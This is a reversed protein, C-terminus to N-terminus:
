FLALNRLIPLVDSPVQYVTLQRLNKSMELSKLVSKWGCNSTGVRGYLSCVQIAHQKLSMSNLDVNRLHLMQLHTCNILDLALVLNAHEIVLCKLRKSFRSTQELEGRFNICLKAINEANIIIKPVRVDSVTLASLQKCCSLDLCDYIEIHVLSLEHLKYLGAIFDLKNSKGIVPLYQTNIEAKDGVNGSKLLKLYGQEHFVSYRTLHDKNLAKAFYMDDLIDLCLVAIRKDFIVINQADVNRLTLASLSRCSSLDLMGNIEINHVYLTHLNICSDFFTPKIITKVSSQINIYSLSICCLDILYEYMETTSINEFSLFAIHKRKQTQWTNKTPTGTVKAVSFIFHDVDPKAEQWADLTSKLLKDVSEPRIIDESCMDQVCVHSYIKSIYEGVSKNMGCIFCFLERTLVINRNYGPTCTMLYKIDEEFAWFHIAALFEKVTQDMFSFVREGGVLKGVIGTKLAFNEDEENLQGKYAPKIPLNFGDFLSAFAIQSLDLLLKSRAQCLQTKSFCNPLTSHTHTINGQYQIKHMSHEKSFLLEITNSYVECRSSGLEQNAFWLSLLQLIYRPNTLMCQLDNQAVELLFSHATRNYDPFLSCVSHILCLACNTDMTELLFYQFDWHDSIAQSSTVLFTNTTEESEVINDLENILQLYTPARLEDLGDLIVLCTKQAFVHELFARDYNQYSLIGCIVSEKLIAKVDHFSANLEGLKVLFTIDFHRLADSKLCSATGGRTKNQQREVVDRQTSCWSRTLYNCLTTKGVGPDGKIYICQTDSSRDEFIEDLTALYHMATTKPEFMKYSIKSIRPKVYFEELDCDIDLLPSLPYLMQKKYFNLLDRRFDKFLSEFVAHRNQVHVQMPWPCADLFDLDGTEPVCKQFLPTSNGEDQIQTDQQNEGIVTANKDHIGEKSKMELVISDKDQLHVTKHVDKQFLTMSNGVDHQNECIVPDYEEHIREYSNVELVTSETDNEIAQGDGNDTEQNDDSSGDPSRDSQGFGSDELMTREIIEVTKNICQWFDDRDIIFELELEPLDFDERLASELPKIWHQIKGSIVDDFLQLQKKLNQCQIVIQVCAIKGGSVLGYETNRMDEVAKYVNQCNECANAARRKLMNAVAESLRMEQEKDCHKFLITGTTGTVRVASGDVKELQILYNLKELTLKAQDGLHEIKTNTECSSKKQNEMFSVHEAKHEKDDERHEKYQKRFDQIEELVETTKWAIERQVSKYAGIVELSIPKDILAVDQRVKRSFSDDKIFNLALDIFRDCRQKFSTYEPLTLSFRGPHSIQDRIDKVENLSNELETEGKLSCVNFLLFCLRCVDLTDLDLRGSRPYFADKNHRWKKQIIKAKNHQLFEDIGWSTVGTPKLDFARKIVLEKMCLRGPEHLYKMIRTFHEEGHPNSATM